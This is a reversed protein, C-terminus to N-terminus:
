GVEWYVLWRILLAAAFMGGVIILMIGGGSLATSSVAAGAALLALGVVAVATFVILLPVGMRGRWKPRKLLPM